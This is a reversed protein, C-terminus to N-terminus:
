DAAIDREFAEAVKRGEETISYEFRRSGMNREVLGREMMNTLANNLAAFSKFQGYLSKSDTRATLLISLLKKETTNPPKM